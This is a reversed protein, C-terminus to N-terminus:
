SPSNPSVDATGSSEGVPVSAVEAPTATDPRRQPPRSRQVWLWTVAVLVVVSPKGLLMTAVGLAAVQNAAYLPCLVVVHVIWNVLWLATIRRHLRLRDASAAAAPELRFRRCIWLSAPSRGILSLGFALALIACGIISVVFFDRGEGSIGVVLSYALVVGVSVAVVKVSGGRVIRIAALALATMIAAIIGANTGAFQYGIVFAFVPGLADASRKFGDLQRFKTLIEAAASAGRGTNTM